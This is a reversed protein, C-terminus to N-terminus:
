STSSAATTTRAHPSGAPVRHQGVRRDRTGDAARARPRLGDRRAALTGPSLRLTEGLWNHASALGQRYAPESPNRESLGQFSTIAREYEALAAKTDNLMRNIHGLRLHAEAMGSLVEDGANQQLFQDYFPKARELLERRLEQMAPIDAGITTPDRDISVLLKDVADAAIHLNQEARAREANATQRQRNAVVLLVLLVATMVLLVAATGWAVVLRRIRAARREARQRARERESRDLFAIARDFSPRVARGLRRDPPERRALAPGARTRSRGLSRGRRGRALRGRAGPASLDGGVAREAQAWEILRTWCRMLSEHSVDVIVDSTLPVPAPPTLFSRGPRRFDRRRPHNRDRACRLDRRARRDADPRRVGRPDTFTDTLARFMLEATRRGRGIRNGPYAEEAHLSLARRM